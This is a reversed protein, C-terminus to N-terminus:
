DSLASRFIEIALRVRESEMLLSNILAEIEDLPGRGARREVEACLDMLRRAGFHSCSGRLAHAAAAMAKPDKADLQGSIRSVREEMDKLFIATIESVFDNGPEGEAGIKLLASMDIPPTEAKAISAMPPARFGENPLESLEMAPVVVAENSTLPSVM